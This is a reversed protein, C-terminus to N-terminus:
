PHKTEGNRCRTPSRIRGSPPADGRAHIPPAARAGPTNTMITPTIIIVHTPSHPHPTNSTHAHTHSPLPLVQLLHGDDAEGVELFKLLTNKLFPDQFVCSCVGMVGGDETRSSGAEEHCFRDEAAAAGGAAGGGGGGGGCSGRAQELNASIARSEGLDGSIAPSEGLNAALRSSSAGRACCGGSRRPARGSRRSERLARRRSARRCHPTGSRGVDGGYRWVDGWM